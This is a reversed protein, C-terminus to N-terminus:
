DRWETTTGQVFHLLFNRQAFFLTYELILNNKNAVFFFYIPNDARQFVNVQKWEMKTYWALLTKLSFLKKLEPINGVITYHGSGARSRDLKLNLSRTWKRVQTTIPDQKKVSHQKIWIHLSSKSANHQFQTMLTQLRGVESPGWRM